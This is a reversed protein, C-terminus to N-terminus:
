LLVLKRTQAVQHEEVTGPEGLKYDADRCRVEKALVDIEIIAETIVRQGPAVGPWNYLYGVLINGQAVWRDLLPKLKM